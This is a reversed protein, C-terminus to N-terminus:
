CGDNMNGKNIILEFEQKVKLGKSNEAPKWHPMKNITDLILKDTKADGSTKSMKADIIEGGENVTFKVVVQKFQRFYMESIKNIGNEKLYKKLNDKGASFEAEKEPILTIATHMHNKEVTNCVPVVYSYKVDAILDTGLDAENILKKQEASLNANTSSAKVMKGNTIGSIEVSVYSSIWNVPYGPIVDGISKADSLKEKKVLRANGDHLNYGFERPTSASAFTYQAFANVSGLLVATTIIFTKM